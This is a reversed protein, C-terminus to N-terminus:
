EIGLIANTEKRKQRAVETEYRNLGAPVIRTLEDRAIWRDASESFVPVLAALLIISFSLSTQHIGITTAREIRREKKGFYIAGYWILISVAWLASLFALPLMAQEYMWISFHEIVPHSVLLALSGVAPVIVSILRFSSGIGFARLRKGLRWRIIAPPITLLLFLILLYHVAPFLFQNHRINFDRGGLLTYRTVVLTLAIPVIVAGVLWAWDHPRLLLGLRKSVLKVPRPLLSLSVFIVLSTLGLIAVVVPLLVSSYIDYEAMRGPTFSAPDLVPPDAVQKPLSSAILGTLVSGRDDIDDSLADDRLERFNADNIFAERRVQMKEALDTLDLRQAGFHFAHATGAASVAYVLEGVLHSNPAGSLHRLFKENAAFLRLFGEKDGELSLRYAQAAILDATKRISIVQTTQGAFYGITRIRPILRDQDFLPLRAASLSTEYTDYKPLSGAKEILDIALKFAKEDKIRWVSEDPLNRLKKKGVYRPPKTTTSKEKEFSNGGSRAAANYFHFSNEPDIRSTIELYDDPLNGNDAAFKGAYETYFDPRSPASLILAEKQQLEPLRPDGILLQQEPTLNEPTPNVPERPYGYTALSQLNRLGNKM